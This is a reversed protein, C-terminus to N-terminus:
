GSQDAPHAGCNTLAGFVDAQEFRPLGDLANPLANGYDAMVFDNFNTSILTEAGDYNFSAGYASPEEFASFSTNLESPALSSTHHCDPANSARAALIAEIESKTLIMVHMVEEAQATQMQRGQNDHTPGWLAKSFVPGFDFLNDGDSNLGLMAYNNDNNM